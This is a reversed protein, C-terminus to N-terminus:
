PEEGRRTGPSGIAFGQMRYPHMARYFPPLLRERGRDDHAAIRVSAHSNFGCFTAAGDCAPPLPNTETSSAQTNDLCSKAREFIGRGAAVQALMENFAFVRTENSGSDQEDPAFDHKRLWNIVRVAVSEVLECLEDKSLAQTQSFHLEGDDREVLVGDFLCVHLQLHLNLSSGFRYTIACVQTKGITGTEAARRQFYRATVECNIRALVRLVKPNTAALLSLEFPCSLV